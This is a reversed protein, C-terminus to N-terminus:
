WLHVLSIFSGMCACQQFLDCTISSRTVLEGGKKGQLSLTCNWCYTETKGCESPKRENCLFVATTVWRCSEKSWHPIAATPSTKTMLFATLSVIIRTQVDFSVFGKSLWHAMWNRGGGCKVFGDLGLQVRRCAPEASTPIPPEVGSKKFDTPVLWTKLFEDTKIRPFWIVLMHVLCHQKVAAKM